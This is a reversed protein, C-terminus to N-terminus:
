PLDFTGQKLTTLFTTWSTPPITLAPGAPHKSDRVGVVGPLNRAVEVCQHNSSSRSAKEWAAGALGFAVEVCNASNASGAAKIWKDGTNDTM